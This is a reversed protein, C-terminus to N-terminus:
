LLGLKKTVEQKEMLFTGCLRGFRSNFLLERFFFGVLKLTSRRGGFYEKLAQAVKKLGKSSPLTAELQEAFQISLVQEGQGQLLCTGLPSELLFQTTPIIM